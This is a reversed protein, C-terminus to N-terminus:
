LEIYVLHIHIHLHICENPEVCTSNRYYTFLVRVGIRTCFVHVINVYLGCIISVGVYLLSGRECYESCHTSAFPRSLAAVTVNKGLLKWKSTSLTLRDGEKHLNSPTHGAQGATSGGPRISLRRM